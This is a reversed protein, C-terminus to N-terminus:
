KFLVNNSGEGLAEFVRMEKPQLEAVRESKDVGALPRHFPKSDGTGRFWATRDSIIQKLLAFFSIITLGDM